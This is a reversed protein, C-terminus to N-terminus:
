SVSPRVEVFGGNLASLNTSSWSVEFVRDKSLGLRAWIVQVQEQGTAGFSQFMKESWTNGRDDSIRLAVKPTGDVADGVPSQQAFTLPTHITGTLFDAIFRSYELRKGDNILHPFARVREIIGSGWLTDEAGYNQAYTYLSGDQRDQLIVQGYAQCCATVAIPGANGNLDITQRQHWLETTEDFVFTVGGSPFTLMYFIHGDQQYIMGIADSITGLAQIKHEIAHTSIRKAQYGNGRLVIGQGQPNQALWYISLDQVAVSNVACLGHQIFVGQIPQYPFDVAGTNYWVETTRTGFVWLERHMVRVVIIPDGGGTKGAFFLPNFTISYANSLYMENAGPKNLIFYGDAFDVQTGGYFAPDNILTVARTQLNVAIGQATGDVVLMQEAGANDSMYVRNQANISYLRIANFNSDIFYLGGGAAAYLDGYISCYLGQGAGGIPPSLRRLGPTPYHTFPFPADEPNKEPYLNICSQAEAILSRAEYFGGILKVQAM